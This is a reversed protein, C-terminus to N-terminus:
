IRFIFEENALKLTDGDFIETEYNAPIVRNNIFTRNKSNLDVIFYSNGRSVIDAHSRSVAINNNVFYDVYSREKGIRFVPKNISISEGTLLRELTPYHIYLNQADDLLGTDESDYLMDTEEDILLGTAEEENLLGTPEDDLMDEENLLGTKEDFYDDNIQKDYHDYYDRPKDTMFGSQGINHKKITNVISRDVRLIYQEIREPQYSSLSKIFYTFKSIEESDKESVPIASYIISEIFDIPNIKDIVKSLPMYIFQVEKTTENIYVNKMDFILKNIVFGNKDIKQTCDVIQEIIFFFDYKSISKKMREYLSVGIPGTFEIQRRRISKCKFFGRICKRSFLDLERNDIEEGFSIKAKIILHCDKRKAYFRM